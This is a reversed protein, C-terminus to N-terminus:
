SRFTSFLELGLIALLNDRSRGKGDRSEQMDGSRRWAPRRVDKVSYDQCYKPSLSSYLCRFKSLLLLLMTSNHLIMSVPIM